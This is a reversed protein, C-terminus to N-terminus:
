AEFRSSRSWRGAEDGFILSLSAVNPPDQAEASYAELLARVYRVASPTIYAYYATKDDSWIGFLAMGEAANSAVYAEQFAGQLIALEGSEFEQRSLTIRYWNM